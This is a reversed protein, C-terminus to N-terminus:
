ITRVCGLLRNGIGLERRGERALPLVDSRMLGRMALCSGPARGACAVFCREAYTRAYGFLKGAGEGRLRCFVYTRAYGFLLGQRL